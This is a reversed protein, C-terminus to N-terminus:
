VSLRHRVADRYIDVAAELQGVDVSENPTHSRESDGPGFKIAEVGALHFWDSMTPSGFCRLGPRAAKLADTLPAGEPTEVPRMRNSRVKVEAEVLEAVMATIQEASYSPTYRIDITYVCSDPIVNHRDGGNLITVASTSRGLFPHLAELEFADLKVIDRAAATLANVGLHPRAAHSTRGRTTCTLLLMGNQAVAAELSTPEGVFAADIPGLEGLIGGLGEPGSIEEQVTAAFILQGADLGQAALQATACAMAAVSAKADGSGLGVLRNEDNIFPSWPDSQWGDKAPVTDLHSNLLFTPGPRAGKVTVVVNDGLRRVSAGRDELWRQLVNAVVHEQRSLSPTAVLSSLLDVPCPKQPSKM